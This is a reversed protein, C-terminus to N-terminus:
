TAAQKAAPEGANTPQVRAGLTEVAARRRCRRVSWRASVRCSTALLHSSSIPMHRHPATSRIAKALLLKSSTDQRRGTRLSAKNRHLARTVRNELIGATAQRDLAPRPDWAAMLRRPPCAAAAAVAARPLAASTAGPAAIMGAVAEDAVGMETGMAVVAEGAGAGWGVVM